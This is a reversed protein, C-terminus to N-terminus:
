KKTKTQLQLMPKEYKKKNFSLDIINPLTVIGKVRTGESKIYIGGRVVDVLTNIIM